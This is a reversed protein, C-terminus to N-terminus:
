NETSDVDNTARRNVQGAFIAFGGGQSVTGFNGNCHPDQGADSEANFM